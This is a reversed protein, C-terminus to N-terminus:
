NCFTILHLNVTGQQGGADATRIGAREDRAKQALERLKEEKMEREKMALKKEMGTRLSIAKRAQLNLSPPPFSEDGM